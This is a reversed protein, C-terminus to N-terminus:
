SMHVTRFMDPCFCVWRVWSYRHTHTRAHTPTNSRTPQINRVIPITYKAIWPTSPHNFLSPGALERALESDGYETPAEVVVWDEDSMILGENHSPEPQVKDNNSSKYREYAAVIRNARVKRRVVCWTVSLIVLLFSAGVTIWFIVPHTKVEDVISPSPAPAPPSPGPTPTPAPAPNCKDHITPDGNARPASHGSSDCCKSPANSVLDAFLTGGMNLAVKKMM